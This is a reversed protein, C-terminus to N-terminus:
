VRHRMVKPIPSQPCQLPPKKLRDVNEQALILFYVGLFRRQNTSLPPFFTILDPIIINIGMRM